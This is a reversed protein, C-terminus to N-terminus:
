SISQKDLGTGTASYVQSPKFYTIYMYLANVAIVGACVALSLQSGVGAAVIGIGFSGITRTGQTVLTQLSAIRNRMHDPAHTQIQAQLSANQVLQGLGMAVLVPLAFTLSTTFAFVALAAAFLVAGGMIRQSSTGFVHTSAVWLGGVVAGVGVMSFMTGLGSADVAFIDKAIAPLIVAYGWGFISFVAFQQLCAFLRTHNYAYQMGLWTEHLVSRTQEKPEHPLHLAGLVYYLPLFSLGNLVYALGADGHAIAIGACAPGVIRALNFGVANLSTASRIYERPVLTPALSLRAPHDFANAVGFCLAFFALLWVDAIGFWLVGGLVCALVCQAIQLVRLVYKKDWRDLLAGGVLVLFFMPLSQLADIVGVWVLSGSVEYVIYGQVVRQMWTGVDSVSKAIFLRRFAHVNLAPFTDYISTRLSTFM